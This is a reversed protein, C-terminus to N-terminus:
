VIYLSDFLKNDPHPGVDVTPNNENNKNEDNYSKQNRNKTGFM